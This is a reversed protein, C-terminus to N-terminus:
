LLSDTYNEPLLFRYVGLQDISQAAQRISAASEESQNAKGQAYSLALLAFVKGSRYGTKEATLIATRALLAGQSPDGGTTMAVSAAAQAKGVEIENDTQTNKALALEYWQLAQEWNTMCNAEALNTYLKGEQAWLGHNRVLNLASQYIIAANDYQKQFRFIHGKIRLLEIVDPLATSPQELIQETLALSQHFQGKLFLLDAYKIATTNYVHTPIAPKIMDMEDMLKRYCLISQDYDGLLHQIHVTLFRYMFYWVGLDEQQLPNNWAFKSAEKLKGTRRLWILESFVALAKLKPEQTSLCPNLLAHVENWYGVGTFYDLAELLKEQIDAIYEPYRIIIRLATSFYLYQKGSRNELIVDLLNKLLIIRWKPSMQEYIHSRVSEDVKWRERKADLQVFVSRDLLTYIEGLHYILNQKELMKLAFDCDFSEISALVSVSYQDKEKLHRMYRDIIAASGTFHAFDITNGKNVADEFLDVCLDLYLPVGGAHRIIQGIDEQLLAGSSDAIPVQELFWRSDEDSLNSLLHQDLFLNWDEDLRDWDIRDRSGIVFLARECCLFLERLWEMSDTSSVMGDTRQKLSEYSDLFLVHLVGKDAAHNICLGLYYPLREFIEFEDLQELQQIEDQYKSHLHRDKIFDVAKGLLATPISASATCIGIAENLLDLVPSSLFSNKNKIDEISHKAKVYYQMLAYDFLSGDAKIMSRIACLINVPNTYDYAELSIIINQFRYQPFKPYVDNVSSINLRKLLSTKGIGGKGYYVIIKHSNIEDQASSVKQISDVFVAQPAVRDTFIKNAKFDRNKKSFKSTLAM